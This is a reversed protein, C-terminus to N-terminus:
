DIIEPAAILKMLCQKQFSYPFSGSISEDVPKTSLSTQKIIIRRRRNSSPISYGYLPNSFSSYVIRYKRKSVGVEKKLSPIGLWFGHM